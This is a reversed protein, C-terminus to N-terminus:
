SGGSLYCSQLERELAERTYRHWFRLNKPTDGHRKFDSEYYSTPFTCWVMALRDPNRECWNFVGEVLAPVIPNPGYGGTIGGYDFTLLDCDCSELEAWHKLQVVKISQGFLLELTQVNMSLEDEIDGNWDLWFGVRLQEAM